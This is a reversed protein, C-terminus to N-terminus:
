AGASAKTSTSDRRGPAKRGRATAVRYAGPTLGVTKHFQRTFAAQDAYGCELALERLPADTHRLRDCARDIRLRSLYQGASFGFTTRIRQDFQFPSLGARAALDPIRLPEDLHDDIYALTASLAASVPASGSLAPADRSIGVLGRIIGAADMLPEKWTLCWGESGNPYLHREMRGRISLGEAIVKLDQAEFGAGLTGSFAESAKRGILASKSAFRCRDVLTQNVAVYRGEHDKIFFVTDPVRDFLEIGPFPRGLIAALSAAPDPENRARAITRIKLGSGANQDLVPRWSMRIDPGLSVGVKPLGLIDDCTKEPVM